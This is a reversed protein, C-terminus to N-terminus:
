NKVFKWFKVISKFLDLLQKRTQCLLTLSYTYFVGEELLTAFLQIANKMNPIINTLDM